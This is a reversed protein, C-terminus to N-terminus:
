CKQFVIKALNKRDIPRDLPSIEANAAESSAAASNTTETTPAELVGPGFQEVSLRKSASMM